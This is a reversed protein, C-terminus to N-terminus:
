KTDIWIKTYDIFNLPHVSLGKVRPNCIISSCMTSLFVWPADEVMLKEAERMINKYDYPNKTVKAKDILRIIEENHYGTFNMSNNKDVHPELFIDETGSDGNWGYLFLDSKKM